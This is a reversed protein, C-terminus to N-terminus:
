GLAVAGVTWGRAEAAGVPYVGDDSPRHLVRYGTMDDGGSSDTTATVDARHLLIQLWGDDVGSDFYNGLVEVWGAGPPIARYILGGNGSYRVHSAPNISWAGAGLEYGVTWQSLDAFDDAFLLTGGQSERVEIRDAHPVLPTTNSHSSLALFGGTWNDTRWRALRVGNKYTSFLGPGDLGLAFDTM